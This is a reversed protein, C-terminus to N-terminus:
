ENRSRIVETKARRRQAKSGFESKALVFSVLLLVSAAAVGGLLWRSFVGIFLCVALFILVFGKVVARDAPKPKRHCCSRFEFASPPPVDLFGEPNQGLRDQAEDPASLLEEKGLPPSDVGHDYVFSYGGGLETPREELWSSEALPSGYVGGFVREELWSQSMGFLSALSRRPRRRRRFIRVPNEKYSVNTKSPTLSVNGDGDCAYSDETLVYYGNSLLRPSRRCSCLSGTLPNLSYCQYTLEPSLPSLGLSRSGCVCTVACTRSKSHCSQEALSHGEKIPSSTVAGSFLLAM